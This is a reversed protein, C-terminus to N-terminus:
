VDTLMKYELRYEAGKSIFNLKPNGRRLPAETVCQLLFTTIEKETQWEYVSVKANLKRRELEAHSSSGLDPERNLLHSM